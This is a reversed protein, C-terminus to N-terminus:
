HGIIESLPELDASKESVSFDVDMLPNSESPKRRGTARAMRFCRNTLDRTKELDLGQEGSYSLVLAPLTDIVEKLLERLQSDAPLEGELVRDLMDQAAWGLEGLVNAGVARGNGKFTHFHRRIDQLVENVQPNEAWMGSLCALEAVIEGSEEIFVERFEEPIDSDEVYRPAEAQVSVAVDAGISLQQVRECLEEARQEAILLMHSTDGQPDTISRQLHLEVQAFAEAFCRFGDDERVSGAKSAAALWGRCQEIVAGERKMGSFILAGAIDDMLQLSKAVTERESMVEQSELFEVALDYLLDIDLEDRDAAALAERLAEHGKDSKNLHRHLAMILRDNTEDSYPKRALANALAKHQLLQHLYNEVLGMHAFTAAVVGERMEFERGSYANAPGHLLKHEVEIKIDVLSRVIDNVAQELQQAKDEIAGDCLRVFKERQKCLTDAQDYLGAAELRYQAAEMNDLVTSDREECDEAAYAVLDNGTIFEIVKDLRQAAATLATVLADMHILGRNASEITHEDIGFAKRVATIHVPSAPSSAVYFLLQQQCNEYDVSPDIEGGNEGAYKIM